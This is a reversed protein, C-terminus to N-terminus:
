CLKMHRNAILCTPEGINHGESERNKVKKEDLRRDKKGTRKGKETETETQTETEGVEEIIIAREFCLM